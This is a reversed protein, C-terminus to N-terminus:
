GFAGRGHHIVFYLSRIISFPIITVLLPLRFSRIGPFAGIRSLLCVLPAVEDTREGQLITYQRQRRKMRTHGNEGERQIEM